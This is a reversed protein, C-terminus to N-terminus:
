VALLLKEPADRPIQKDREPLRTEYDCEPCRITTYWQGRLGDADTNELVESVMPLTMRDCGPCVETMESHESKM